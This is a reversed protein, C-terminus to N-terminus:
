PIGRVRYFLNTGPPANTDLFAGVPLKVTATKLPTEIALDFNLQGSIDQWGILDHSRQVVHAYQGAPATWLLGVGGAIPLTKAIQFPPDLSPQSSSIVSLYYDQFVYDAETVNTLDKPVARLRVRQSNAGYPVDWFVVEITDFGIEFEWDTTNTIQLTRPDPFKRVVMGPPGQLLTISYSNTLIPLYGYFRGKAATTIPPVFLSPPASKLGSLNKESLVTVPFTQEAYLTPLDTNVSHIDFEEADPWV